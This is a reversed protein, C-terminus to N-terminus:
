DADPASKSRGEEEHLRKKKLSHRRKMINVRDEETIMSSRRSSLNPSSEENDQISRPSLLNDSPSSSTQSAM